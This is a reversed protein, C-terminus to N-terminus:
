TTKCLTSPPPTNHAFSQPHRRVCTHTQSLNSRRRRGGQQSAKHELPSARAVEFDGREGGRRREREGGGRVARMDVFRDVADLDVYIRRAPGLASVYAEPDAPAAAPAARCARVPSALAAALAGGGAAGLAGAAAGDDAAQVLQPTIRKRPPPQQQKQQQQQVAAM